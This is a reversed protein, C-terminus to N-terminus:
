GQWYLVHFKEEILNKGKLFRIIAEYAQLSLKDMVMAYLHGSPIGETGATKIAHMVEDFMVAACINKPIDM